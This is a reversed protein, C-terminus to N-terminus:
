STLTVVGIPHSRTVGKAWLLARSDAGDHKKGPLMLALAKLTVYEHKDVQLRRFNACVHLM